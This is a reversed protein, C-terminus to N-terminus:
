ISCHSQPMQQNQHIWPRPGPGPGPGPSPDPEQASQLGLAWAGSGGFGFFVGLVNKWETAFWDNVLLDDYTSNFYNPPINKNPKSNSNKAVTRSKPALWIICTSQKIVSHCCLSYVRVELCVASMFLFTLSLVGYPNCHLRASQPFFAEAIQEMAPFVEACM